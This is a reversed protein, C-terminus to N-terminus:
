ECFRRAWVRSLSLSSKPLEKKPDIFPRKVVIARRPGAPTVIEIETGLKSLPTPVWAYGINKKLRPSRALATLIGIEKGDKRVPWPHPLWPRVVEDGPVEVGVLKRTPGEKKIKKLATRGIFDHKKELDVLWG